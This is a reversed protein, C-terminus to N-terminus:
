TTEECNNCSRQLRPKETLEQTHFSPERFVLKVRSYVRGVNLNVQDRYSSQYSEPSARFRGDLNYSTKCKLFTPIQM